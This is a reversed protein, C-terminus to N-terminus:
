IMYQDGIHKGYVADFRTYKINLNDLRNQMREYKDNDQKLNIIYTEYNM